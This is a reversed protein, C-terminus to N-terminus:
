LRKGEITATAQAFGSNIIHVAQRGVVLALALAAITM